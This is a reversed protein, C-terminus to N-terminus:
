APATVVTPAPAQVNVAQVRTQAQALESQAAVIRHRLATLSREGAHVQDALRVRARSVARKLAHDEQLLSDIQTQLKGADPAVVAPRAAPASQAAGDTASCGAVATGAGGLLAASALWTKVTAMSRAHARASLADHLSPSLGRM